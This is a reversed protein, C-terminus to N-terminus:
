AQIQNALTEIGRQGKSVLTRASTALGAPGALEAPTLNMRTGIFVPLQLYEPRQRLAHLVDFGNLGPMMPDLVMADPRHEDLGALAAHGDARRLAPIGISQLTAAMLDRASADGDVGMVRPTASTRLGARRLAGVVEDPRIPRTLM